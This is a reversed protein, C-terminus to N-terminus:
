FFNKNSVQEIFKDDWDRAIKKFSYSFQDIFNDLEEDSILMSNSFTFRHWKGNILTSFKEKMYDSVAIGFLNQEKCSYELSNRM